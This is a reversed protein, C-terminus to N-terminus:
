SSQRQAVGANPLISSFPDALIVAFVNAGAISELANIFNRALKSISETQL